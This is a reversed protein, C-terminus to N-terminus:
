DKAMNIGTIRFGRSEYWAVLADMDKGGIDTPFAVLRDVGYRSVCEDLLLSGKDSGRHSPDIWISALSKRLPIVIAYGVKRGELFMDLRVSPFYEDQFCPWRDSSQGGDSELFSPNDM